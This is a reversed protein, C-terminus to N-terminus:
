NFTAASNAILASSITAASKINSNSQTNQHSSSNGPKASALSITPNPSFQQDITALKNQIKMGLTNYQKNIFYELEQERQDRSVQGFLSVPM